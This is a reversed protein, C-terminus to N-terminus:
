PALVRRACGASLSSLTDIPSYLMRAPHSHQRTCGSGFELLMQIPQIGLGIRGNLLLGGVIVEQEISRRRYGVQRRSRCWFRKRM